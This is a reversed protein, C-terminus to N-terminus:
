IFSTAQRIFLLVEGEGQELLGLEASTKQTSLGGKVEVSDGGRQEVM